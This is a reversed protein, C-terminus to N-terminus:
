ERNMYVDDGLSINCGWILFLPPEINVRRGMKGMLRSAIQMRRQTLSQLTDDDRIHQDNFAQLQRRTDLKFAAM